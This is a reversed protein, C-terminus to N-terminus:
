QSAEEVLKKVLDIYEKMAQASPKGKVATWAEWKYKARFDLMGPKGTENDGVTGQKFLGYLKLKETDSPDKPLTKVEEAAAEFEEKLEPTVETLEPAVETQEPATADAM